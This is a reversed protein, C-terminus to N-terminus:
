RLKIVQGVRLASPSVGPNLQEITALSVGTKEAVVSFTDGAQITYTGVTGTGTSTTGTTSSTGATTATGTTRRTTSTRARSGGGTTQTAVLVTHTASSSSGGADSVIVIVAIVVVILALPALFRGLGRRTARHRERRDAREADASM